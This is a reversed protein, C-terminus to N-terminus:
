FGRNLLTDIESDESVDFAIEGFHGLTFAFAVREYDIVVGQKAAEDFPDFLMPLHRPLTNNAMYALTAPRSFIQGAGRQIRWHDGNSM